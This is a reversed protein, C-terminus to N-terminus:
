KKIFKEVKKDDFVIFYLGSTLSAVSIESQNETKNQALLKGNLAYIKVNNQAKSFQIRDSTITPYAIPKADENIFDGVSLSSANVLYGNADLGVAGGSGDVTIQSLQNATLGNADTGFRLVGPVYGTINVTGSNWETTSTDAFALETVSSDVDLNLTGNATGGSFTIIGM